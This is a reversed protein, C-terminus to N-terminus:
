MKAQEKVKVFISVILFAVSIWLLIIFAIHPTNPWYILIGLFVLSQLVMKVKGFINAKILPNQPDPRTSVLMNIAEFIVIWLALWYHLGFLSYVAIPIILIRDAVSDMLEGIKTEEHLTRAVVGDLLDTLAGIAFFAIIFFTNDNDFFFLEIALIVGIALRAATLHNPLLRRPWYKTVYVGLIRDKELNAAELFTGFRDIQQRMVVFLQGYPIRAIKEFAATLQAKQSEM